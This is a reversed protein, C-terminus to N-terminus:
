KIGGLIRDRVIELSAIARTGMHASVAVMVIQMPGYIGAAECLQSTLLGAFSCVVLDLILARWSFREGRRLRQAYQVGGGWISLALTTLWPWVNVLHEHNEPPKLDM